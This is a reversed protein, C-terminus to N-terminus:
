CCDDVAMSLFLTMNEYQQKGGRFEERLVAAFIRPGDEDVVVPTGARAQVHLPPKRGM